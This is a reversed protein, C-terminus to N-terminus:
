CHTSVQFLIVADSVTNKYKKVFGLQSEYVSELTCLLVLITLFTEYWCRKRKGRYILCTLGDLVPKLNRQMYQIYLNDLQYDMSIPILRRGDQKFEPGKFPSIGLTDGGIIEPQIESIYAATQIRLANSVL